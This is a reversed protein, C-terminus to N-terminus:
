FRSIMALDLIEPNFLIENYCVLNDYLDYFFEDWVLLPAGEELAFLESVDKDVAARMWTATFAYELNCLDKMTEKLTLYPISRLPRQVLARPVSMRCLIAPRDDAYYLWNFSYTESGAFQPARKVMRDSAIGIEAESQSVSVRYGGITLLERFNYGQDIRMKLQNVMPHGFMGKGQIRTIYGGHMLESIAQRVTARSTKMRLSIDEETELRNDGPSLRDIREKLNAAIIQYKPASADVPWFSEGETKM